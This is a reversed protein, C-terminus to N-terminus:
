SYTFWIHCGYIRCIALRPLGDLVVHLQVVYDLRHKGCSGDKSECSWDIHSIHINIRRSSGWLVFVVVFLSLFAEFDLLYAIKPRELTMYFSDGIWGGQNIDMALPVCYGQPSPINNDIVASYTAIMYHIETRKSIKCRSRHISVSIGHNPAYCPISQWAFWTDAVLSSHLAAQPIQLTLGIPGVLSTRKHIFGIQGRSGAHMGSGSYKVNASSSSHKGAQCDHIPAAFTRKGKEKARTSEGTSKHQYRRKRNGSAQKYIHGNSLCRKLTVGLLWCDYSHTFNVIETYMQIEETEWRGVSNRKWIRAIETKQCPSPSMSYLAQKSMKRDRDRQNSAYSLDSQGKCSYM